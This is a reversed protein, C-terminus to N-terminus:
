QGAEDLQDAIAAPIGPHPEPLIYTAGAHQLGRELGALIDGVREEYDDTPVFAYVTITVASESM